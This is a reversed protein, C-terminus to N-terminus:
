MLKNITKVFSDYEIPKAIFQDCGAEIAKAKETTYASQVIIPVEPCCEKILKTAVIGDMVPMVIDMVILDIDRNEKMFDVAELGNKAHFLRFKDSIQLFIQELYLYNTEVDDVILVKKYAQMETENNIVNESEIYLQRFPVKVMFTSGNGKESEVCIKGKLLYAYEKAIALGLGLGGVSRTLSGDEQAFREFIIKQKDQVIGIGTDKVMLILEKDEVRYGFEVYGQQTFKLANGILVKFIREIMDIDSIIISSKNSLTKKIYLPINQQKATAEFITYLSVLLDNLNIESEVLDVQEIELRSIELLDEIILMLQNSSNQIIQQFQERREPSVNDGALLSVFGTIGNLPTRIEHSMNQLFETQLKNANEASEKAVKLEEYLAQKEVIHWLSNMLIDLQEQDAIHYDEDKNAVGIVAVIKDEKFVPISLFKKLEVHGEVTGRAQPHELSYDNVMLPKRDRVVDGWMGTKSLEFTTHVDIIRCDKHVKKSWSNIALIKKDEDYFYIYGIKSDTLSIAHTLVYDLLDHQNKAKYKSIKYLAELRRNSIKLNYENIRQETEDKAIILVAFIKSGTEKLPFFELSLYKTEGKDCKIEYIKNLHKGDFCSNIYASLEQKVKIDTNDSFVALGSGLTTKLHCEFTKKFDSNCNIFEFDKNIAALMWSDSKSILHLFNFAILDEKVRIDDDEILEGTSFHGVTNGFDDKLISNKWFLNVKKGDKTLVSNQYCSSMTIEGSLILKSVPLIEDRLEPPLFNEFWNKGIIEDIDYGLIRVGFANIYEVIGNKNISIVFVNLNDLTSQEM